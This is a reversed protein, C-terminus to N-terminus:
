GGDYAFLGLLFAQTLGQVSYDTGEFDPNFNEAKGLFFM